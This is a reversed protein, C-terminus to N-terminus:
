VIVSGIAVAQEHLGALRASCEIYLGIDHAGIAFYSGLAIRSRFGFAAFHQPRFRAQREVSSNRIIVLCQGNRVNGTVTVCRDGDIGIGVARSVDKPRVM